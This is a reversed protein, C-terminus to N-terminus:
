RHSQRDSLVLQPRASSVRPGVVSRGRAAASGASSDGGAPCGQALSGVQDGDIVRRYCPLCRALSRAHAGCALRAADQTTPAIGQWMKKFLWCFLRLVNSRWAQVAGVVARRPTRPTGGHWFKEPDRKQARCQLGSKGGADAIVRKGLLSGRVLM